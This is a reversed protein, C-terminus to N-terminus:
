FSAYQQSGLEAMVGCHSPHPTQWVGGYSPFARVISYDRYLVSFKMHLLMEIYLINMSQLTTNSLCCSFAQM